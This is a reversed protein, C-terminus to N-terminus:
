YLRVKIRNFIFGSLFIYESNDKKNEGFFFFM